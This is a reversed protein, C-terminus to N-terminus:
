DGAPIEFGYDKSLCYRRAGRLWCPVMFQNGGVYSRIVQDMRAPDQGYCPGAFVLAAIGIQAPMTNPNIPM